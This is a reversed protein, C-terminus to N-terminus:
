RVGRIWRSEETAKTSPSTAGSGICAEPLPRMGNESTWFCLVGSSQQTTMSPFTYSRVSTLLVRGGHRRQLCNALSDCGPPDAGIFLTAPRSAVAMKVGM